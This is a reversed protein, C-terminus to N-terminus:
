GCEDTPIHSMCGGITKYDEKNPVGDMDHDADADCPETDGYSCPECPNTHLHWLESHDPLGDGDADNVNSYPKLDCGPPIPLADVCESFYKAFQFKDDECAKYRAECEEKDEPEFGECPQEGEEVRFHECWAVEDRRVDNCMVSHRLIPITSPPIGPVVFPCDPADKEADVAGSTDGTKADPPLPPECNDGNDSDTCSACLTLLVAVLLQGRTGKLVDLIRPFREAIKPSSSDLSSPDIEPQIHELKNM